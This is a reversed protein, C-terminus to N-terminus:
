DNRLLLLPFTVVGLPKCMRFLRMGTGLMGARERDGLSSVLVESSILHDLTYETEM